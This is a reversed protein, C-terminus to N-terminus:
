AVRRKRDFAEEALRLVRAVEKPAGQPGAVGGSAPYVFRSDVFM